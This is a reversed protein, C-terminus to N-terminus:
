LAMNLAMAKFMAEFNKMAADYEEKSYEKTKVKRKAWDNRVKRQEPSFTKIVKQDKESRIAIIKGLATKENLGALLTNFEGWTMDDEHRLRIGYQEAFSSEIM